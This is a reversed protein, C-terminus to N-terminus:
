SAKPSDEFARLIDRASGCAEEEPGYRLSGDEVAANKSLSPFRENLALLHEVYATCNVAPDQVADNIFPVGFALVGTTAAALVTATGVGMDPRRPADQAPRSAAVAAALEAARVSDSGSEDSTRRSIPLRGTMAALEIRLGELRRALDYSEEVTSALGEIRRQMDARERIGKISLSLDRDVEAHAQRLDAVLEAETEGGAGALVAGARAQLENARKVIGPLQDFAELTRKRLVNSTVEASRFRSFTLLASAATAVAAVGATAAGSRDDVFTLALGSALGLAAAVAAYIRYTV